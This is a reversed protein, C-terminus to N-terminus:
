WSIYFEHSLITHLGVYVAIATIVLGKSIEVTRDEEDFFLRDSSDLVKFIIFMLVIIVCKGAVSLHPTLGTSLGVTAFASVAEFLIDFGLERTQPHPIGSGETINLILVSIIIIVGAFIVLTLAKNITPRDVAFRGIEVQESSGRLQAWVFALLTRATTVKIGGGCSGPAAGIFMLLIM